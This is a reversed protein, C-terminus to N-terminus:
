TNGYNSESCCLISRFTGEDLRNGECSHQTRIKIEAFFWDPMELGSQCLCM